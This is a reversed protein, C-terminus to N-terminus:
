AIYDPFVVGRTDILYGGYTSIVLVHTGISVPPM